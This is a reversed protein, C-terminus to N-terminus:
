TENEVHESDNENAGFACARDPFLRCCADTHRHKLHLRCVSMFSLTALALVIYVKHPLCLWNSYAFASAFGIAQAAKSAALAPTLETHFHRSLLVSIANLYM